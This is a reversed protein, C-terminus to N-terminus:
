TFKKFFETSLDIEQKNDADQALLYKEGPLCAGQRELWENLVNCAHMADCTQPDGAGKNFRKVYARGTAPDRSVHVAALIVHQGSHRGIAHQCLNDNRWCWTGVPERLMADRSTPRGDLTLYIDRGDWDHKPSPAFTMPWEM